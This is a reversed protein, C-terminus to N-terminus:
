QKKSYKTNFFVAKTLRLFLMLFDLNHWFKLQYLIYVCVCM